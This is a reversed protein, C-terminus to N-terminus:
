PVKGLKLILVFNMISIRKGSELPSVRSSNLEFNALITSSINAEFIGLVYILSQMLFTPNADYIVHNFQTLGRPLIQTLGRPLFADPWTSPNVHSWSTSNCRAVHNFQTLGRPLIQALGRPQIHMLIRPLIQTLGRPLVTNAYSWTTLVRLFM